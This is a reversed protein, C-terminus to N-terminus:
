YDQRASFYAQPFERASNDSERNGGLVIAMFLKREAIVGERRLKGDTAAATPNARRAAPHEVVEGPFV